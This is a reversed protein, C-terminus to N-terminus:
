SGSKQQNQVFFSACFSVSQLLGFGAAAGVEATSM